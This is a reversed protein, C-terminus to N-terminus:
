IGPKKGDRPQIEVPQEFHKWEEALLSKLEAPKLILINLLSMCHKIM